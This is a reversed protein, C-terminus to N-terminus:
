KKIKEKPLEMDNEKSEKNDKTDLNIPPEEKIQKKFGEIDEFRKNFMYMFAIFTLVTSILTFIWDYISLFLDSISGFLMIFDRILTSILGVPVFMFTSLLLICILVLVNIFLDGFNVTMLYDCYKKVNEVFKKIM